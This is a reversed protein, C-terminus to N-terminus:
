VSVPPESGLAGSAVMATPHHVWAPNEFECTLSPSTNPPWPM